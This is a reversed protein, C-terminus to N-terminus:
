VSVLSQSNREQGQSERMARLAAKIADKGGDSQAVNNMATEIKKRSPQADGGRQTAPVHPAIPPIPRRLEPPIDSNTKGNSMEEELSAKAGRLYHGIMLMGASDNALWPFRQQVFVAKQYDETKRDFLAPYKQRAIQNFKRKEQLQHFKRPVHENILDEAQGLYQAAEEPPVMRENEKGENEVYGQLRARYFDRVLKAEQVVQTLQQESQINALVDGPNPAVTVPQTSELQAQMQALQEAMDEKQEKLENKQRTLKDVRKRATEPWDGHTEPQEEPPNETQPTESSEIPAAEAVPTKPQEQEQKERLEKQAEAPVGLKDMLSSSSVTQTETTQEPTATSESAAPAQASIEGASTANDAPM